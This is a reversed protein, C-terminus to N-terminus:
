LGEKFMFCDRTNIRNENKDISMGEDDVYNGFLDLGRGISASINSGKNFFEILFKLIRSSTSYKDAEVYYREQGERELYDRILGPAELVFNYNLVVPVIFIKSRRGEASREYNIRQAEIATGLLGLKLRSELKGRDRGLGERSFFVTSATM